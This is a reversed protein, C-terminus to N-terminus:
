TIFTSIMIAKEFFCSEVHYLKKPLQQPNDNSPYLAKRKGKRVIILTPTCQVVTTYHCLQSRQLNNLQRQKSRIRCLLHKRITGGSTCDSRNYQPFGWMWDASTGNPLHCICSPLSIATDPHPVNSRQWWSVSECACNLNFCPIQIKNHVFDPLCFVPLTM